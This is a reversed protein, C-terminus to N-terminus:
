TSRADSQVRPPLALGSCNTPLQVGCEFQNVQFAARMDGAIATDAFAAPVLQFEACDPYVQSGHLYTMENLSLYARVTEVDM